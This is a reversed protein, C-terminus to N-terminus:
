SISKCYDAELKFKGAIWELRECIEEADCSDYTLYYYYIKGGVITVIEGNIEEDRLYEIYDDDVRYSSGFTSEGCLYRLYKLEKILEDCEKELFGVAPLTFMGDIEYTLTSSQPYDAYTEYM